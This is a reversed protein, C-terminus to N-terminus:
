VTKLIETKKVAKCILDHVDQVSRNADIVEFRAPSNESLKLYGQRLKEHFALDYQEFKQDGQGTSRTRKQSRQLGDEAPLDLLITLDPELGDLTLDALKDVVDIGLDLAHGQYARTSDTFRDTIVIHGSELAPAILTRYHMDRGAFLLFAEAKASWIADKQVLLDRIKEAEPTGGPERTTVVTKGQKSLWDRLLAIQTTKGAGEGGEFSLFFGKNKQTM